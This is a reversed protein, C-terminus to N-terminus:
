NLRKYVPHTEVYWAPCRLRDENRRCSIVIKNDEICLKRELALLICEFNTEVKKDRQKAPCTQGKRQLPDKLWCNTEEHFYVLVQFLFLWNDKVTASVM